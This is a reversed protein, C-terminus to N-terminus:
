LKTLQHYFWERLICAYRELYTDGLCMDGWQLYVSDNLYDKISGSKCEYEVKVNM